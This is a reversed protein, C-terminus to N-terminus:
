ENNVEQFIQATIGNAEAFRKFNDLAIKATKFSGNLTFAAGISGNTRSLSWCNWGWDKLKYVECRYELKQIKM